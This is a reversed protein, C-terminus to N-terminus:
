NNTKIEIYEVAKDFMFILLKQLIDLKDVEKKLNKIKLSMVKFSVTNRIKYLFMIGADIEDDTYYESIIDKAMERVKIAITYLGGVPVIPLLKELQAKDLHVSLIELAITAEETLTRYDIFEMPECRPSDLPMGFKIGGLKIKKGQYIEDFNDILKMKVGLIRPM